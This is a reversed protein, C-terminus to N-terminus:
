IIYIIFAIRCKSKGSRYVVVLFAHWDNLYSVALLLSIRNRFFIFLLMLTRYIHIRPTNLYSHM